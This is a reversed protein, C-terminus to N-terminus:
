RQIAGPGVSQHEWLAHDLEQPALRLRRAAEEIARILEPDSVGHGVVAEVFRRVHVDPKVTDVGLRMRLSQFAAIGLFKVRGAFDRGFEADQAWDHLAEYTTLKEEILFRTFGRLWMVRTWLNNGWLFRAAQRNGEQDDTHRSLVEDLDELTRVEARRHHKFFQISKTVVVFRMQLDLVTEMVLVLYDAGFSAGGDDGKAPGVTRCAEVLLDMESETVPRTRAVTV